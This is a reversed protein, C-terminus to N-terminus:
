RDTEQSRRYVVLYVVSLALLILLNIVTVVAAQSIKGFQFGLKYMYVPLTQSFFLPGGGTMVNILVLNNTIWIIVTIGMTLVQYKINPMIIFRFEQAGSMGDMRGAEFISQDISQISAAVVMAFLPFLRWVIVAIVSYLSTEPTGLFPFSADLVGCDVLIKNILGNQGNFMWKWLGAVVVGPLVWPVLMFARTLRATKNASDSLVYGVAVGLVIVFVSGLAVWHVTNLIVPVTEKRSFVESYTATGVYRSEFGRIMDFDRFSLDISYIAVGGMIIFILLFGPLVFGLSLRRQAKEFTMTKLKM